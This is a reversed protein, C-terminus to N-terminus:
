GLTYPNNSTGDGGTISIASKLFITPYIQEPGDAWNSYVRGDHSITIVECGNYDNSSPTIAWQHASINLWNNNLCDSVTNWSYMSTSLCTARSDTTGGSTAYGYDSPYILGVKGTWSNTRTVTDNCYTGSSCVKINNENRERTYTTSPTINNKWNSDYIGSNISPSGLNWVVTEIMDQSSQNITSTPMDKTKSNNSNNYWKGDIGVYTNGLYDTNLERMLDAGEYGDSAGWQNIGSKNNITSASTDWSYGGLPEARRIKLLSQTQGSSTEINNMVGIIRWLENNFRVYNNPNAGVYRKNNDTTADSVLSSDSLSNIYEVATQSPQVFYLTCKTKTTTNVRLAWLSYDWEASGNDCVVNKFAWGSDKAPITDTKTEGQYVAIINIDKSGEAVVGNILSYTNNSEFRAFSFYIIAGVLIIVSCVISVIKINKNNKNSLKSLSKDKNFKKLSM